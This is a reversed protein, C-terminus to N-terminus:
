LTILVTRQNKPDLLSLCSIQIEHYGQSKLVDKDRISFYPGSAFKFDKGDEWDKLCEDGLSYSRGYAPIANIRV